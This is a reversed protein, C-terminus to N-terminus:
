VGVKTYVVLFGARRAGAGHVLRDRTEAGGSASHAPAPATRRAEAAVALQLGREDLRHVDTRVLPQLSRGVAAHGSVVERHRLDTVLETMAPHGEGVCRHVSLRERKARRM